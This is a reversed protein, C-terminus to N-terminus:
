SLSLLTQENSTIFYELESSEHFMFSEGFEEVYAEEYTTFEKLERRMRSTFLKTGKQTDVRRLHKLWQVLGHGCEHALSIKIQEEVDAGCERCGEVIAPINLAIRIPGRLVSRNQYVALADPCTRFDYKPNHRVSLGFPTLFTQLEQLFSNIINDYM